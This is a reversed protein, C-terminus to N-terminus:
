SSGSTWTAVLLVTLLMLLVAWHRGFMLGPAQGLYSAGMGIYLYLSLAYFLTTMEAILAASWPHPSSSNLWFWATLAQNGTDESWAAQAWGMATTGAIAPFLLFSMVLFVWVGRIDDTLNGRDIMGDARDVAGRLQGETVQRAAGAYHPDIGDLLSQMDSAVHSRLEAASALIMLAWVAAFQPNMAALIAPVSVSGRGGAQQVGQLWQALRVRFDTLATQLNGAPPPEHDYRYDRGRIADGSCGALLTAAAPLGCVAVMKKLFERRGLGETGDTEADLDLSEDSRHASSM